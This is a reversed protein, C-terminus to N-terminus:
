VDRAEAGSRLRQVAGCACVPMGAVAARFVRSVVVVRDGIDRGPHDCSLLAQARDGQVPPAARAGLSVAAGNEAGDRQGGLRQQRLLVGVFGGAAARRAKKALKILPITFADEYNPFFELQEFQEQVAKAVEARHHGCITTLLSAFTDLYRRGDIDYLYCGEGRAIIKPGKALAANSAFHPIIYQLADKRLQEKEEESWTKEAM